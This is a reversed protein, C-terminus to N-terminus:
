KPETGTDPLVNPDLGYIVYDMTRKIRKMASELADSKSSRPLGYATYKKGDYNFEMGASFSGNQHQYLKLKCNQLDFDETKSVRYGTGATRPQQNAAM